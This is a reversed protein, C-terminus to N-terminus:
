YNYKENDLNEIFEERLQWNKEKNIYCGLKFGQVFRNFKNEIDM